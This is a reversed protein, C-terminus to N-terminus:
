LDGRQRIVWFTERYVDRVAADTEKEYASIIMRLASIDNVERLSYIAELKVEREPFELLAIRTGVHLLSSYKEVVLRTILPEKASLLINMLRGDQAFRDFASFERRIQEQDFVNLQGLMGIIRTFHGRSDWYNSRVWNILAGSPQAVVSKGALTDFVEIKVEPDEVDSAIALLLGESAVNNWRGFNAVDNAALVGGAARILSHLVEPPLDSRDRVAGLFVERVPSIVGRDLALSSISRVYIDNREALTRLLFLIDSDPIEARRQIVDDGFITALQSHLMILTLTAFRQADKFGLSDGVLQSLVPQYENLKNSDLALAATLRLALMPNDSYAHRLARFRSDAPLTTDLSRLVSEYSEPQTRGQLGRLWQRVQESARMLGLRRARSIVAGEILQRQEPNSAERASKLLYEHSIPDDSAVLQQLNAELESLTTGSGSIAKIAQHLQPSAVVAELDNSSKNAIKVDSKTAIQYTLVAVCLSTAIILAKRLRSAPLVEQTAEYERSLSIAPGEVAKLAPRQEGAKRALSKDTGSVPVPVNESSYARQRIEQVAKLMEGASKYRQQPDPHVARRIVEEAWVPPQNIFSSLPLIAEPNYDGALSSYSDGYPFSGTLLRYALVGLAFVDSAKELGGGAGQEPALYPLTQIPPLMSTAAAEADFSGMVGVLSVSGDRNIWLSDGCLDGCALNEKHLADLIRLASMFRREVESKELNGELISHGNLHPFVSFCIGNAAIGFSKLECVQGLINYLAQMRKRFRETAASNVSVPHRMVWVTLSEETGLHTAGYADASRTSLIHTNLSFYDTVLGDSQFSSQDSNGENM